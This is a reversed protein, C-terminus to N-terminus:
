IPGCDSIQILRIFLVLISEEQELFSSAAAEWKGVASGPWSVPSCCAAQGSSGWVQPFAEGQNALKAGHLQVDREKM